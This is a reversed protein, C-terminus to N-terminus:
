NLNIAASTVTIASPGILITSSGVKLTIKSKSELLIDSDAYIRAKQKIYADYNGSQVHVAYDGENVMFIANKSVATIFDKKYSEHYNGTHENVVDGGSSNYTITDSRPVSRTISPGSATVSQGSIFNASNRGVSVSNDGSINTRSTSKITQDSHGEIHTSVGGAGYVYEDGKNLKTKIEGIEPHYQVTEYSGSPHYIESSAVTHDKINRYKFNYGGNNDREGYVYPYQPDIGSESDSWAPKPLKKNRDTTM